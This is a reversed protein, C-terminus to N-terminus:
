SYQQTPSFRNMRIGGMRLGTLVDISPVFFRAGSVPRLTETWHPEGAAAPIELARELVADVSDPDSHFLMVLTGAESDNRYPLSHVLLHEERELQRATDQIPVAVTRTEDLAHRYNQVLAFSGRSFDAEQRDIFVADPVGEAPKSEQDPFTIAPSEGWVRDLPKVLGSLNHDIYAVMDRLCELQGAHLYFMLDGETAPFERGEAELTEFPRLRRPKKGHWALLWFMPGFGVVCSIKEGPYKKLVDSVFGPVMVSFQGVSMANMPLDVVEYILVCSHRGPTSVIGTQSRSM